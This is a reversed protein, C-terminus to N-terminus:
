MVTLPTNNLAGDLIEMFKKRSTSWPELARSYSLRKEGLKSFRAQWEGNTPNYGINFHEPDGNVLSAAFASVDDPPVWGAGLKVEIETHDIDEPQVKELADVNAKYKPDVAAAARTLALKRRVNGSLYQDAPKWGESPDHFAIGDKVLAKGVQEPEQGLLKAMHDLDLSGHEHLSAALAE